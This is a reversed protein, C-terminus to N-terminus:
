TPPILSSELWQLVLYFGGEALQRWRYVAVLVVVPFVVGCFSGWVFFSFSFLFSFSFSSFLTPGEENVCVYVAVVSCCSRQRRRWDRVRLSTSFVCRGIEKRGKKKM